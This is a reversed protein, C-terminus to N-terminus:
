NRYKKTKRKSKKTKRKSKKTKRKSKKTKRKSKKRRGGELVNSEEEKEKIYKDYLLTIEEKEEQYNKVLEEYIRIANKSKLYKKNEKKIESVFIEIAEDYLQLISKKEEQLTQLSKSKFKKNRYNEEIEANYPQFIYKFYENFESTGRDPAISSIKGIKETNKILINKKEPNMRELAIYIDYESHM